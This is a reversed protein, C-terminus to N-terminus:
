AALRKAIESLQEVSLQPTSDQPTPSDSAADPNSSPVLDVDTTNRVISAAQENAILRLYERKRGRPTAKLFEIAGRVVRVRMYPEPPIEGQEFENRYDNGQPM